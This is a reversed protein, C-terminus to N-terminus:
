KYTRNTFTNNENGFKEYLDNWYRSASFQKRWLGRKTNITFFKSRLLICSNKARSICVYCLRQDEALAVPNGLHYYSPFHEEEMGLLIIVEFELGKSSHRTTLTIENDPIGLHAFRNITAGKLNFSEAEKLLKELNAIENPYIDSNLLIEKLELKEVVFTLWDFITLKEKSSNIVNFFEMKLRIIAWNKRKNNHSELLRIWFKFINDFSESESNSCWLACKQLWVVVASNEFSWNVIYFPIDETQLVSALHQIQINSHTIIGIDNFPIGKTILNPIVKKAVVEYQQEMEEECTIFTFDASDEKRLQANYKPLPDPKLTELSAEIIQQSSRYNSELYITEIEESKTLERLFEPYGGNFGYISQNVDGVAYLKVGASFVLELVMEHLAKGLDQYEDILLWPFKSQISKRVYEHGSIIQASINIIDIFDIYETKHLKDQYIQAGRIINASFEIDIKSKGAVSLSRYKNVDMLSIDNIKLEKKVSEFIQDSINYPLIKIPYSINYQPYLHAYPQIVHLLSFSHVTGLFDKKDPIYGYRKLRKKLERVTERSFSICALGCPRKINSKLLSVAKLTLIKTKGSGPGAIVVTNEETKYASYQQQDKKILELDKFFYENM